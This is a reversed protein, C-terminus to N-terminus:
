GSQAIRGGHDRGAPGTFDRSRTFRALKVGEVRVRLSTLDESMPAVRPPVVISPQRRQARVSDYRFLGGRALAVSSPRRNVFTACPHAIVADLDVLQGPAQDLAVEIASPCSPRQDIAAIVRTGVTRGVRM